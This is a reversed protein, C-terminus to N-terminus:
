KGQWLRATFTAIIGLVVAVIGGTIGTLWKNHSEIKTELTQTRELIAAITGNLKEFHNEQKEVLRYINQTREDVRTLLEQDTM